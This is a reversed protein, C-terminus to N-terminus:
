REETPHNEFDEDELYDDDEDYRADAAIAADGIAAAARMVADRNRGGGNTDYGGAGGGGGNSDGREWGAAGTSASTQDFQGSQTYGYSSKKKGFYGRKKHRAEQERYMAEQQLERTRMYELQEMREETDCSSMYGRVKIVDKALSPTPGYFVKAGVRKAEDRAREKRIYRGYAGYDNGSTASLPKVHLESLIFLPSTSHTGSCFVRAHSLSFRDTPTNGSRLYDKAESASSHRWGPGSHRTAHSSKVQSHTYAHLQLCTQLSRTYSSHLVVSLADRDIPTVKFDLPDVGPPYGVSALLHQTRLKKMHATMHARYASLDSEYVVNKFLDPHLRNVSANDLSPKYGTKAYSGARYKKRRRTVVQTDTIHERNVVKQLMPFRRLHMVSIDHKVQNTFLPTDTLICNGPTTNSPRPQHPVSLDSAYWSRSM